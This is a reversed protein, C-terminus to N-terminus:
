EGEKKPAKEVIGGSIKEGNKYEYELTINGEEDYYRLKGHQKGDKYEIHKTLESKNNFEKRYGDILGNKYTSEVEVRGFKYTATIGHHKGNHYSMKKTIQGRDNLELFPGNLQNDSYSSITKARGNEHYTIWMGNKKGDVIYGEETTGDGSRKKALSASSNDAQYIEYGTFDGTGTSSSSSSNGGCSIFLVTSFVLTVYKM